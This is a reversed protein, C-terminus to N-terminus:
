LVDCSSANRLQSTRLHIIAKENGRSTRYKHCNVKLQFDIALHNSLPLLTKDLLDQLSDKRFRLTGDYLLNKLISIVQLKNILVLQSRNILILGCSMYIPPTGELTLTHGNSTKLTAKLMLTDREETLTLLCEAVGLVNIPSLESKRPQSDYEYYEKDWLYNLYNDTKTIITKLAQHIRFTDYESAENIRQASYFLKSFEEEDSIGEM